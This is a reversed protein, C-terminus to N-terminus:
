IKVSWISQITVTTVEPLKIDETITIVWSVIGTVGFTIRVINWQIPMANSHVHQRMLSILIIVGFEMLGDKPIPITMIQTGM